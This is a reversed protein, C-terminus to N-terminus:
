GLRTLEAAFEFFGNPHGVRGPEGAPWQWRTAPFLARM